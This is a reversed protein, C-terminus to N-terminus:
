CWGVLKVENENRHVDWEKGYLSAIDEASLYIRGDKIEPRFKLNQWVTEREKGVEETIAAVKAKTNLKIRKGELSFWITGDAMEIDKMRNDFGYRIPIMVAGQANIYPLVEMEKTVEKGFRGTNTRYNNQDLSFILYPLIGTSPTMTVFAEEFILKSDLQDDSTGVVLHYTNEPNTRDIDLILNSFEIAVDGREELDNVSILLKGDELVSCQSTLVKDNQKVQCDLKSCNFRGLLPEGDKSMVSLTISGEKSLLDVPLGELKMAILDNPIAISTYRQEEGIILKAGSGTADEILMTEVEKTAGYILGEKSGGIVMFANVIIFCLSIMIKRKMM